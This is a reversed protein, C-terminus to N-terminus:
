LELGKTPTKTQLALAAAHERATGGPYQALVTLASDGPVHPTPDIGLVRRLTLGLRPNRAEAWQLLRPLIWAHAESSCPEASQLWAVLQERQARTLASTKDAALMACAMRWCTEPPKM